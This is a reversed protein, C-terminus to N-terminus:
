PPAKELLSLVPAKLKYLNKTCTSDTVSNPTLHDIADVKMNFTPLVFHEKKFRGKWLLLVLFLASQAILSLQNPHPLPPQYAV